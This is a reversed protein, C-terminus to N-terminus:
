NTQFQQHFIVLTDRIVFETSVFCQKWFSLWGDNLALFMNIESLDQKQVNM